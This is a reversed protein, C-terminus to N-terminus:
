LYAIDRDGFLFVALTIHCSTDFNFAPFYSALCCCFSCSTTFMPICSRLRISRCISAPANTGVIVPVSTDLTTSFNSDVSGHRNTDVPLDTIILIVDM